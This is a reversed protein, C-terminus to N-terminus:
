VPPSYARRSVTITDDDSSRRLMARPTRPPPATSSGSPNPSSIRARGPELPLRALVQWGGGPVPGISIEGGCATVRARMGALGRGGGSHELGSQHDTAPGNVVGIEVHGAAGAIVVDVPAGPAHKLANTLSEQVVRYAADAATDPLTGASGTFRCSVALGAAGARAVLEGILQVGPGGRQQTDQDLLEVLRGIETEAQRASQSIADFAEAALAPDTETLRQGASAQIVMVSVCHAVIDHLERAIRTREYRVAEAAFLAREAALQRGRAAFQETLRRRSRVVLGIAWPGITLVEVIPNFQGASLQLGTGLIVLALVSRTLDAATGLSYALLLVPVLILSGPFAASSGLVTLMLCGGAVVAALQPHSRRVIVCGFVGLGCGTELLNNGGHLMGRAILYILLFVTLGLAVFLDAQRAGAIRAIRDPARM